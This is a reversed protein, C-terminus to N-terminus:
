FEKVAQAVSPLLMQYHVARVRSQPGYSTDAAQKNLRCCRCSSKHKHRTILLM